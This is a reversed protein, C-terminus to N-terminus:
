AAEPPDNRKYYWALLYHSSFYVAVTLLVGQIFVGVSLVLFVDKGLSLWADLSFDSIRETIVTWPIAMGTLVEGLKVATYYIPIITLPNSVLTAGLVIPLNCGMALALPISAAVQLGMPIIMGICTGLALSKAVKGPDGELLIWRQLLEEVWRRM